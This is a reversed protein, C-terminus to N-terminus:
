RVLDKITLQEDSLPPYFLSRWTTASSGDTLLQTHTKIFFEPDQLNWFTLDKTKKRKQCTRVLDLSLAMVKLIRLSLERTKAALKVIADRFLPADEDPFYTDPGELIDVDYSERVEFSAQFILM